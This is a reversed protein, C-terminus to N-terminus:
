RRLVRAWYRPVLQCPLRVKFVGIMGTAPKIETIEFTADNKGDPKFAVKCAFLSVCFRLFCSIHLNALM